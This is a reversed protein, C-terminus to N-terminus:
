KRIGTEYLRNQKRLQISSEEEPGNGRNPTFCSVLGATYGQPDLIIKLVANELTLDGYRQKYTLYTYGYEDQEGYVAFFESGMSLGLLEAIGMLSEVGKETDTIKDEYFRGRLFTM